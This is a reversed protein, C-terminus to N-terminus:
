SGSPLREPVVHTYRPSHVREAAIVAAGLIGANDELMTASVDLTQAEAPFAVQRARRAVLDVWAPGLAETLGGGLVVRELSILTHISGIQTGLLMGAHDAVERTLEDGAHYAEGITKSKIKDLDGEVLDAILTKHNSLILARLRNVMATRSCFQELTRLGPSGFPSIWMQGIEGGTFHRGYHLRGGLMLAGGVGTGVWVGLLPDADRGAGFHAEGVLAVNVDNDLFVRAGLRRELLEVLPVNNWRLNVAELVIGKYPDVPSPAGIGVGALDRPHERIEQCIEEIAAQLRELVRELGGLAKTKIKRTAVIEAHMAGEGASLDVLGVQMNTGGLDIGIYRGPTRTLEDM